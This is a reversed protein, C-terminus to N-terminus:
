QLSKILNIIAGEGLTINMTMNLDIIVMHYDYRTIEPSNHAHVAVKHLSIRKRSFEDVEDFLTTQKLVNEQEM